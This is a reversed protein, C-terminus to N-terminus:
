GGNTLPDFAEVLQPQLANGFTWIRLWVKGTKAVEALEAETLEWCTIAQGDETGHAPLPLYEKQDKAFTMNSGIFDIPRAM